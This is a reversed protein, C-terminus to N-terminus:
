WLLVAALVLVPGWFVESWVVSHISGRFINTIRRYEETFLEGSNSPYLVYGVLAAFVVLVLAPFQMPVGGLYFGALLLVAVPLSGYRLVPWTWYRHAQVQTGTYIFGSGVGMMLLGEAVYGIGTSPLFAPSSHRVINSFGSVGLLFGGVALWLAIARIHREMSPRRREELRERESPELALTEENCSLCYVWEGRKNPAVTFENGCSCVAPIRNGSEGSTDTM